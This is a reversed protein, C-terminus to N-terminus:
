LYPKMKDALRIVSQAYHVSITQDEAARRAGANYGRLADFMDVGQALINSLYWTGVGINTEIQFLDFLRINFGTGRNFDILAPERIQMLGIEGAKGTARSNGSSEQQIVGVIIAPDVGYAEGYKRAMPSYIRATERYDMSKGKWLILVLGFLGSIITPINM